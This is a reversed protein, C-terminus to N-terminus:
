QILEATRVVADIMKNWNDDGLAKKLRKQASEWHPLAREFQREGARTLSLRVVRRDEGPQSVVWGRKRLLALSRTLTTSDMGLVTALQNQSMGPGVKLAQMLTFQPGTIGRPRLAEEYLQSVLRTTRRLTACACPLRAIKAPRSQSPRSNSDM